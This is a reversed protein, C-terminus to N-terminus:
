GRSGRSDGATPSDKSRSRPAMIGNSFNSRLRNRRRGSASRFCSMSREDNIKGSLGRCGNSCSASGISASRITSARRCRGPPSKRTRPGRARLLARAAAPRDSRIAAQQPVEGQVARPSGRSRAPWSRRWWRFRRGIRPRRALEAQPGLGAPDVVGGALGLAVADPQALGDPPHDLAFLEGVALRANQGGAHPPAHRDRDVHADPQVDDM